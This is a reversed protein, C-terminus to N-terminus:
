QDPPPAEDARRRLEGLAYLVNRAQSKLKEGADAEVKAGAVIRDGIKLLRRIGDAAQEDFVGERVLREPLRRLAVDRDIGVSQALQRLRDELEIRISILALREDEINWFQPFPQPRRRGPKMLDGLEPSEKILDVAEEAAAASVPALSPLSVPGLTIGYEGLWVRQVVAGAAFAVIGALALQLFVRTADSGILADLASDESPSSTEITKTPDGPVKVKKTVTSTGASGWGDGDILAAGIVLLALVFAVAAVIRATHSAAAREALQAKSPQQSLGSAEM